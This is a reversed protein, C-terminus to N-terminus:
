ITGPDSANITQSLFEDDFYGIDISEVAASSSHISNTLNLFIYIFTVHKSMFM